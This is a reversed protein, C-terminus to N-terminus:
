SSREKRAAEDAPSSRLTEALKLRARHVKVKAAASSIGLAAAIEEYALGTDARMLVAARDIEPLRALAALVVRLESEGNALEEPGPRDDLAQADLPVYRRERQRQRLFLNRVIAFLYGRVTTTDVRERVTWARVFAEAVLDDAITADGSLYLAFRRLDHAHTRYVDGLDALPTTGSGPDRAM